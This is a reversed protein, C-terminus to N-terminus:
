LRPLLEHLERIFTADDVSGRHHMSGLQRIQAIVAERDTDVPAAAVTPTAGQAKAANIADTLAQFAKVHVNGIVVSNEDYKAADKAAGRGRHSTSSQVEGAVSVSWVGDGMITFASPPRLQVSGISSLPITKVGRGQKGFGLRTITVATGDFEVAATPTAAKM